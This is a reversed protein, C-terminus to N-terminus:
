WCVGVTRRFMRRGFCIIRFASLVLRSGKSLQKKKYLENKEVFFSPVRKVNPASIFLVSQLFFFFFSLPYFDFKFSFFLFNKPKAFKTLWTFHLYILTSSAMKFLVWLHLFCDAPSLLGPGMLASCLKLTFIWGVLHSAITLARQLSPPDRCPSFSQSQACTITHM